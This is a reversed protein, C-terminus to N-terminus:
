LRGVAPWLDLDSLMLRGPRRAATDPVTTRVLPGEGQRVTVKAGDYQPSEERIVSRLDAALRRATAGDKVVACLVETNEGASGAHRGLASPRVPKTATFPNFDARCVDGPCGAARQYEEIDAPSAGEEPHVASLPATGPVSYSITDKSVQPAVGKGHPRTWTERGDQEGRTHGNAKLSATIGAADFSGQWHGAARTDVATDVQDEKLHGAWPGPDYPNLLASSPRSVAASRKQGDESLGRVAAADLYTVPGSRGSDGSVTRLGKVLPSGDDSADPGSGSSCGTVGAPCIVSLALAGVVSGM